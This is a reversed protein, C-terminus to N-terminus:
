FYINLKGSNYLIIIVIFTIYPNKIKSSQKNLHRFCQLTFLAWYIIVNM